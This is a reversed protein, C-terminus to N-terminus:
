INFSSEEAPNETEKSKPFFTDTLMSLILLLACAAIVIYSGPPHQVFWSVYGLLPIKFVPKGIVRDSELIDDPVDNADGKTRFCRGAPSNEVVEIIRHTVIVGDPMSYTVPDNVQLTQPDVSQIYLLSGVPYEPEMSGSLVTYPTLGILRAGALLIALLVMCAILVTITTNYVSRLAKKM